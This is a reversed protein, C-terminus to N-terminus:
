ILIDAYSLLRLREEEEQVARSDSEEFNMGHNKAFQEVFIKNQNTRNLEYWIYGVSSERFANDAIKKIYEDFTFCQLEKCAFFAEEGIVEISDGRIGCIKKCNKFAKAGVIGRAWMVGELNVCDCFASDDFEISGGWDHFNRDNSDGFSQLNSCGKFANKRIKRLFYIKLIKRLTKCDEFAGEGIEKTCPPLEVVEANGKYKLVVDDKVEFDNPDYNATITIDKGCNNCFGSWTNESDGVKEWKLCKHGIPTISETEIKGCRECQRIKKGEETCTPFSQVAWDCWNHGLPEINRTETKSCIECKRQEVGAKECTPAVTTVWRSMKHQDKPVRESKQEGCFSCKYDKRGEEACTPKKNYILEFKHESTPVFNDKREYGCSCKHITYGHEKCTPKVIEDVFQHFHIKFDGM